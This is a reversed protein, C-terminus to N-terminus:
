KFIERLEVMDVLTQREDRPNKKSKIRKQAVMRSLKANSVNLEKAAETLPRWEEQTSVLM